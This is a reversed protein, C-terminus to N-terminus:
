YLYPPEKHASEEARDGLAVDAKVDKEPHVVVGVQACAPAAHDEVVLLVAKLPLDM